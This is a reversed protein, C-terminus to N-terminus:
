WLGKQYDNTFQCNAIVSVKCIMNTSVKLHQKKSGGGGKEGDPKSTVQYVKKIKMIKGNVMM